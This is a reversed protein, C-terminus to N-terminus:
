RQLYSLIPLHWIQRTHLSRFDKLFSQTLATVHPRDNDHLFVVGRSLIGPRKKKISTRLNFLTESHREENVTSNRGNSLYEQYIVGQRDWFITLMLKGASNQTQFKKLATEHVAKWVMLAKKTFPTSHHVWTENGIIIRDLFYDKGEISYRQLFNIAAEM